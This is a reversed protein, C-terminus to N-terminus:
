WLRRHKVDSLFFAILTCVGLATLALAGLILYLLFPESFMIM